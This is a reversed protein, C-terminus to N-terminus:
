NAPNCAAFGCGCRSRSASTRWGRSRVAHADVLVRDIELGDALPQTPLATDYGAEVVQYFAGIGRAQNKATFRLGTASASFLARKLVSSGEARLMTEGKPGLEAIGLEPGNKALHHSYAKLALVAYAASLTSFDGQGVPRTIGQFDEGTVHKLLLPFHRALMTVYQSDSSLACHFDYWEHPDHVGLKYAQILREAEDHKKLLECTGALYVGTLDTPWQKPYNKDLYDRLNLMYNTTVVGERTLLYIAYAQTRAERLSTPDIVVMAQLHRLGSQFVNAPPAFGAAKAEILFHMVYTSLFDIRENNDAAWYGFSGQDNQRSRLMAFTHELQANIEGRSLGFDAEDALM